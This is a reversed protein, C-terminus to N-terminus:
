LLVDAAFYITNNFDVASLDDALNKIDFRFYPQGIALKLPSQTAPGPTGTGVNGGNLANQEYSSVAGSAYAGVQIVDSTNPPNNFASGIAGRSLVLNVFRPGTGAFFYLHGGGAANGNPDSGVAAYSGVKIGPPAIVETVGLQTQTGGTNNVGQFLLIGSVRCMGYTGLMRRVDQIVDYDVSSAGNAVTIYALAVYGTDVAPAGGGPTGTKYYLPQSAAGSGQASRGNLSWTALKDVTGPAFKEAVTDFINRSSPSGVLLSYSVEILDVRTSGSVNAPVTFQQGNGTLSIPKMEHKDNLGIIGNINSPENAADDIFGLGTGVTVIMSAPNAPRVKFGEGIFGSQATGTDGAVTGALRTAYQRLFFERLALPSNSWQQNLDSSLVQELPNIIVQDFPQDAM